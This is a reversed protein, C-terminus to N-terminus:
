GKKILKKINAVDTANGKLKGIKKYYTIKEAIEKKRLASKRRLNKNPSRRHFRVKKAELIKGSGKIRKSFRRLLSEFTEGKKRRVEQSM